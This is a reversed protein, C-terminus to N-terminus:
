EGSCTETFNKTSRWLRKASINLNWAGLWSQIMKVASEIAGQLSNIIQLIMKGDFEPEPEVPLPTALDDLEEVTSKLCIIIKNYININIYTFLNFEHYIIIIIKKLKTM